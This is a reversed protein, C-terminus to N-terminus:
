KDLKDNRMSAVYRQITKDSFGRKPVRNTQDKWGACADRVQDCFRQWEITRGPQQTKMLHTIAGGLKVDVNVVHTKATADSASSLPESASSLPWQQKVKFRHILLLRWKGNRHESWDDRVTGTKWRIIAALWDRGLPPADTPVTAPAYGFPPPKDDEERDWRLPGLVGDALAKVLQQRAVKEDCCDASRIHAVAEPLTMWNEREREAESKYPMRRRQASRM